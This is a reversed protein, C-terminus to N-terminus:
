YLTVPRIVFYALKRGLMKFLAPVLLWTWAVYLPSAPSDNIGELDNEFEAELEPDNPHVMGRLIRFSNM